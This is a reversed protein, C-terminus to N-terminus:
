RLLGDDYYDDEAEPYMENQINGTIDINYPALVFISSAVKFVTGNLAYSAGSIFDLSRQAEDVDLADLNVIVPRQAKVNDIIKQTDEFSSPRYVLVSMSPAGTTSRMPQAQAASQNHMNIVNGKQARTERAKHTNEAAVSRRTRYGSEQVPEQPQTYSEDVTPEYTPQPAQQQPQQQYPQQEYDDQPPEAYDDYDKAADYAGDEVTEVMIGMAELFKSIVGGKKM